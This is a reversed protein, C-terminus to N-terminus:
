GHEVRWAKLVADAPLVTLGESSKVAWRSGLCIAALKQGGYEIVGIDGRTPCEAEFLGAREACDTVVAELGGLRKLLRERGLATQYRGRLHEAPDPCGTAEVAWDAITLACDQKGDQFPLAAMRDLFADLM